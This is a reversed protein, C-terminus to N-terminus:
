RKEGKLPSMLIQHFFSNRNFASNMKRRRDL